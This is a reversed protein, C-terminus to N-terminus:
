LHAVHVGGTHISGAVPPKTGVVTTDDFVQWGSALGLDIILGAAAKGAIHHYGATAGLIARYPESGIITSENVKGVSLGPVVGHGIGIALQEIVIDPRNGLILPAVDPHSGQTTTHLAERGFCTLEAGDVRM